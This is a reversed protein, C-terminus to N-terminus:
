KESNTQLSEGVRSAVMERLMEPAVCSVVYRRGGAKLAVCGKRRTAYVREVRRSRVNLWLGYYGWFGYCGVLPFRGRLGGEVVTVEEISELPIYTTEVLCRLELVGEGLVICRPVSLLAFAVLAVLIMTVWVALYYAGDATAFLWWCVGGMVLLTVISIWWVRGDLGGYRFTVKM